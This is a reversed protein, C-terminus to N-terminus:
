ACCRPLMTVTDFVGFRAAIRGEEFDLVDIGAVSFRRGQPPHGMFPQRQTGTTRTVVTIREGADVLDVIEHHLDPFATSMQRILALYGEAGPPVGPLATPCGPQMLTRIADEDRANLAAFFARAAAASV